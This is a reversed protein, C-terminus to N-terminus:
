RLRSWLAVVAGYMSEARRIIENVGWASFKKAIDQAMVLDSKQYFLRKAAFAKGGADRNYTPELICLNGLHWTFPTLAQQNPWVGKEPNEPFVHELSNKRVAVARTASQMQEALAYVVYSSQRKTLYLERLALKIQDDTPDIEELVAKALKLATASKGSSQRKTRLERSARYLASELDNPNRNAIVSHRVVLSLVLRVLKVFDAPSLDSLGALLIPLVYDAELDDVLVKVGDRAREPIVEADQDFLGAYLRSEEACQAAFKVSQIQKNELTSRIERFLTQSKVDGYHSVWMHRVFASIRRTGLTEVVTNWSNRVRRKSQDGSTTRMLYNLLLDPVALRLGRDNLTEFILYAEDESSVEIAVLNMHTALTRRLAKLEEVGGGGRSTVLERLKTELFTRAQL